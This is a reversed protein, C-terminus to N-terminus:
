TGRLYTVVLVGMTQWLSSDSCSGSILILIPLVSHSQAKRTSHPTGAGISEEQIRQFSSPDECPCDVSGKQKLQSCPLTLCIDSAHCGNSQPM